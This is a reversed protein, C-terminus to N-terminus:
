WNAAQCKRDDRGGQREGWFLVGGEFAWGGRSARVLGEGPPHTSAKMIIGPLQLNSPGRACPGDLLFAVM